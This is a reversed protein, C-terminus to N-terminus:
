DRQQEAPLARNSAEFCDEATASYTTGVLRPRIGAAQEARAAREIREQM